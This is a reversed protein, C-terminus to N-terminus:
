SRGNEVRVIFAEAFEAALRAATKRMMGLGFRGLRGTLTVDSTYHVETTNDDIRQLRMTNTASVVSARSGEEGRVATVIEQPPHEELVDVDLNFRAKIPGVALELRAKYSTESLTEIGACGPICPMMVAPDRLAAWM